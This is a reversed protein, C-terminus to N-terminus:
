RGSVPQVGAPCTHSHQWQLRNCENHGARRGAVQLLRQRDGPSRRGRGDPESRGPLAERTGGSRNGGGDGPHRRSARTCRNACGRVHSHQRRGGPASRQGRTMGDPRGTTSNKSMGRHWGHSGRRARCRHQEWRTTAHRPLLTGPPNNREGRSRLRGPHHRHSRLGVEVAGGARVCQRRRLRNPHQERRWQQRPEPTKDGLHLPIEPVLVLHTYRRRGAVLCARVVAFIVAAAAVQRCLQM